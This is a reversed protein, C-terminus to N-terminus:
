VPSEQVAREDIKMHQDDNQHRRSVDNTSYSMSYRIAHLNEMSKHHLDLLSRRVNSSIMRPDLLKEDHYSDKVVSGNSSLSHSHQERPFLHSNSGSITEMNKYKNIRQNYAPSTACLSSIRRPKSHIVMDSTRHVVTIHNLNMPAKMSLRYPLDRHRIRLLQSHRIFILISGCWLLLVCIVIIIEPLRLPDPRDDDNNNLTTIDITTNIISSTRVHVIFKQAENFVLLIQESENKDSSTSTM